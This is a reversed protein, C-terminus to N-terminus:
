HLRQNQMMDERANTFVWVGALILATAGVMAPVHSLMTMNGQGCSYGYVLTVPIAAALFPAVRFWQRVQM